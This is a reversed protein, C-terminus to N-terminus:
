PECDVILITRNIPSGGSFRRHFLSRIFIQFPKMKEANAPLALLSPLIFCLPSSDHRCFNSHKIVFQPEPHYDVIKQQQTKSKWLDLSFDRRRWWRDGDFSAKQCEHDVCVWLGWFTKWKGNSSKRFVFLLVDHQQIFLSHISSM